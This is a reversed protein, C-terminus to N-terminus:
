KLKNIYRRWLDLTAGDKEYLPLGSEQLKRLKRQLDAVKRQISLSSENINIKDLESKVFKSYVKHYGTHRSGTSIGKDPVRLFIGNSQHDLDMGIKKIVPHNAMEVPIIHQAQYGNWQKIGTVGMSLLISRGLVTSKGGNVVGDIGPIIRNHRSKKEGSTGKFLGSNTKSM